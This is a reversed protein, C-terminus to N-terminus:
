AGLGKLYREHAKAPSENAYLVEAIKKQDVTLKLDKSKRAPVDADSSLVPSTRKLTKVEIGMLRDVEKLIEETAKGKFEPDELVAMGISTAKANYPHGAQAWPRRFNGDGTLEHAWEQILEKDPTSIEPVPEMTPTTIPEPKKEPVARVQAIQDDIEVAGKHDGSELAQVKRAKLNEVAQTVAQEQQKGELASLRDLLVKQDKMTQAYLREFQKMNSYVRNFRKQMKEDMAVFDTTENEKPEEKPVDIEKKEPAVAPKEELQTESM